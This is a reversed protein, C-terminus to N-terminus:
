HRPPCIGLYTTSVGGISRARYIPSLGGEHFMRLWLHSISGISYIMCVYKKEKAGKYLGFSMDYSAIWQMFQGGIGLMTRYFFKQEGNRLLAKYSSGHAARREEDIACQIEVMEKNIEEEDTKSQLDLLVGRAEDHRDAAILQM